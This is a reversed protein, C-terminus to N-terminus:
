SHERDDMEPDAGDEPNGCEKRGGEGDFDLKTPTVKSAKKSRASKKKLSAIKRSMRKIKAKMEGRTLEGSLVDSEGQTAGEPTKPNETNERRELILLERRRAGFLTTLPISVVGGSGHLM